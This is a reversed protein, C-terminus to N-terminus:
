MVVTAVPCQWLVARVKEYLASAADHNRCYNGFVEKMKPAFSVFVGGVRAKKSDEEGGCVLALEGLLDQSLQLVEPMCGFLSDVQVSAVQSPLPLLSPSPGSFHPPIPV